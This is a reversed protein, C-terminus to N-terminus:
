RRSKIMNKILGALFLYARVNRAIYTIVPYAIRQTIGFVRYYGKVVNNVLEMVIFTITVLMVAYTYEHILLLTLLLIPSIIYWTYELRQSLPSIRLVQYM